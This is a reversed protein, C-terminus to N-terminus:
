ETGILWKSDFAYLISEFGGRNDCHYVFAGSFGRKRDGLGRM